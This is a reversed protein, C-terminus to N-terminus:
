SAAGNFFSEQAVLCLTSWLLLAIFGGVPLYTRFDNFLEVTRLNLLFVVFLFLLIIAGAYIVLLLVALFEAGMIFFLLSVLLFLAALFFVALACSASVWSAISAVFALLFIVYLVAILTM